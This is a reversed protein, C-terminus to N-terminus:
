QATEHMLTHQSFKPSVEPTVERIVSFISQPVAWELNHLYM